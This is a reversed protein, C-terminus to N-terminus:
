LSQLAIPAYPAGPTHIHSVQFLRNPAVARISIRFMLAQFDVQFLEIWNKFTIRTQNETLRLPNHARKNESGCISSYTGLPLLELVRLREANATGGSSLQHIVHHVGAVAM